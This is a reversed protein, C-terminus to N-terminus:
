LCLSLLYCFVLYRTMKIEIKTLFHFTPHIKNIKMYKRIFEFDLSSGCLKPQGHTAMSMKSWKVPSSFFKFELKDKQCAVRAGKAQRSGHGSRAHRLVWKIKVDLSLCTEHKTLCPKFKNEKYVTYHISNVRSQQNSCSHLRNFKMQIIQLLRDELKRNSNEM